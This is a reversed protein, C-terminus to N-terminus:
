AGKPTGIAKHNMDLLKKAADLTDHAETHTCSARLISVIAESLFRAKMESPLEEALFKTSERAFLIADEANMIGAIDALDASKRTIKMYTM